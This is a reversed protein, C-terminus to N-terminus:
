GENIIENLYKMTKEKEEEIIENVKNFEIKNYYLNGLNSLNTCKRNSLNFRRLLDGLKQKNSERIITAFAVNFKISFITGHFTDTIVFDANKIYALMEFPDLLLNIDAVEQYVGISIIKKNTKRAFRKIKRAEEKSIRGKYAYIIIYNTHEVKKNLLEDEFDCIIVPDLNIRAERNTLKKVINKSNEDRVSINKINNLLNAIEKDVNYKKLNDYTVSGFCAAYTNVAINEYSKGFLERSYGVNKSSQLCNFVEDSGILLMDIDPNYNKEKKIGLINLFEEYKNSLAKDMKERQIYKFINYNKFVKSIISKKKAEVIPKEIKYDVFQVDCGIQKLVKRLGYAQLFSGYNIVRQMSMIGIKKMKKESGINLNKYTENFM